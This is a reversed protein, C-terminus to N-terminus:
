AAENRAPPALTQIVLDLLPSMARMAETAEPTLAEAFGRYDARRRALRQEGLTTLTLMTVRRDTPHSSRSILGIKVLTDVLRSINAAPLHMDDALVCQRLGRRGAGEIIRLAQVTSENLSGDDLLHDLLQDLRQLLTDFAILAMAAKDDDPLLGAAIIGRSGM